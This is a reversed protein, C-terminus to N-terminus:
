QEDLPSHTSPADAPELIERRVALLRNLVNNRRDLRIVCESTRPTLLKPERLLDVMDFFLDESINV